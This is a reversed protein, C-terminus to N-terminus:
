FTGRELMTTVKGQGDNRLVELFEQLTVLDQSLSFHMDVEAGGFQRTFGPIRLAYVREFLLKHMLDNARRASLIYWDAHRIRGYATTFAPSRAAVIRDVLLDEFDRKRTVTPSAFLMALPHIELEPIAEAVAAANLDPVGVIAFVYPLHEKEQEQLAAQIKYTALPFCDSPSLNVMEAGRRFISGFFKVNFRYLPRDGGNLLRFDTNTRGERVDTMSFEHADIGAECIDQFAIEAARGLVLQGVNRRLRVVADIRLDVKTVGLVSEVPDHATAVEMLRTVTTGVLRAADSIDAGGEVLLAGQVLHLPKPWRAWRVADAFSLRLLEVVAASSPSV